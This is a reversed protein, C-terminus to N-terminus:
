SDRYGLAALAQGAHHDFIECAEDTFHNKWDGAIGKRMFSRRAETGAARGSQRQFSNDEVAKDIRAPDRVERGLEDALRHLEKAPDALLDEYRTEVVGKRGHWTEVFQPWTFRPFIPATMACEIFRPLNGTVDEPDKIGLANAFRGARAQSRKEHGLVMHHYLSVMVDRGDRWVVVVDRMNWPNLVHCQMLCSRMMPLRNRPFPLDFVQALMLSLWSGGSKPFENVVLNRAFPRTAGRLIALRLGANAKFWLPHERQEIPLFKM